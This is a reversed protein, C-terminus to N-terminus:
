RRAMAKRLLEKNLGKALDPVAKIRGEITGAVLDQAQDTLYQEISPTIEPEWRMRRLARDLVAVPVDRGLAKQEEAYVAAAKEPEEKLLKVARLWGRLYAVVADPNEKLIKNTVTLMFPLPDYKCFNELSRVIGEHEAVAVFPDTVATADIAKAVLSPIRDKADPINPADYDGTKLGHSPAVRAVFIYETITGKPLGIKKGKLQAVSNIDSNKLVVIHNTGCFLSNVAVATYPIGKDLGIMFPTTATSNVDIAGAIMADRGEKGLAFRRWDVDLGEQKFFGQRVAILDPVGMLATHIGLRIKLPAQPIAPSAPVVVLALMGLLALRTPTKM